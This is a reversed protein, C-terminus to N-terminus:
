LGLRLTAALLPSQTPFGGLPVASNRSHWNFGCFTPAAACAQNQYQSPTFISYGFGEDDSWPTFHTMRVGAEITLKQTIKWSDQIFGEYTHYSIDNIRNFNAQNIQSLNGELMDAYANGTTFNVNSTPVFQMYGNTNNNAPQANRIWEYFFGLKSRILAM